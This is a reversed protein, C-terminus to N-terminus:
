QEKPHKFEEATKVKELTIDIIDGYKWKRSIFDIESEIHIPPMANKLVQTLQDQVGPPFSSGDMGIGSIKIPIDNSIESGNYELKDIPEMLVEVYGEIKDCPKIGKIQYPITIKNEVM